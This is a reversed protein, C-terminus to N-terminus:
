LCGTLASFHGKLFISFVLSLLTGIELLVKRTLPSGIHVPLKVYLLVEFMQTVHMMLPSTLGWKSGFGSLQREGIEESQNNLLIVRTYFDPM